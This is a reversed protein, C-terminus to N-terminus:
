GFLAYPVSFVLAVLSMNLVFKLTKYLPRNTEKLRGSRKLFPTVKQFSRNVFGCRDEDTNPVITARLLPKMVYDNLWKGISRTPRDVDCMLILRYQDSNNKAFHLNTEDFMFAEGDRWSLTKGDVNIFADDSNPTSLGLHYRLSSAIPDLHRTLESQPPLLSFMAGNVSPCQRLIELTKPCTKLASEHEYNGYWKLYFKRWGYKYFTRFGLDYYASSDPNATQDLAEQQFLAQAEAAITQWQDQIPQLEPFDALDMCAKRARKETFLYLVCNLPAFMPWGKRTYERLSHFRESGRYRYVYLMSFFCFCALVLM